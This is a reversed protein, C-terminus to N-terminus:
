HFSFAGTHRPKLDKVQAVTCVSTNTTSVWCVLLSDVLACDLVVAPDQAAGCM